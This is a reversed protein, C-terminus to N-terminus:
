FHQCTEPCNTLVVPDWMELGLFAKLSQLERFDCLAVTGHNVM